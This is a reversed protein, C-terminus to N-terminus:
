RLHLETPPSGDGFSYAIPKLNAPCWRADAGMFALTKSQAREQALARDECWLGAAKQGIQAAMGIRRSSRAIEVGCVPALEAPADAELAGAAHALAAAPRM